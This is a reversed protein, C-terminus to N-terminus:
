KEPPQKLRTDSDALFQIASDIDTFVRFKLRMLKFQTFLAVVMRMLLNDPTVVLVWGVREPAPHEPLRDNMQKANLPFHKVKRADVLIHVPPEGRLSLDHGAYSAEVLDDITITEYFQMFIVQNESFWETTVAM